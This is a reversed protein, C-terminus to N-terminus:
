LCEVIFPIQGYTLTFEGIIEMTDTLTVTIFMTKGQVYGTYRAPHSDPPEGLIEPGGHYQIYIGPVDFRGHRDLLIPQDISGSACDFGISASNPEVQMGMHAGGWEGTQVDKRRHGYTEQSLIALLFVVACIMRMSRLM